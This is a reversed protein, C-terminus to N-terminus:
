AGLLGGLFATSGAVDAEDLGHMVLAGGGVATRDIWLHDLLAIFVFPRADRDGTDIYNSTLGDHEFTPM